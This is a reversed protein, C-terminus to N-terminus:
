FFRILGFPARPEANVRCASHYSQTLPWPGMPVGHHSAAQKHKPQNRLDTFLPMEEFCFNFYSTFRKEPCWTKSKILKSYLLQFTFGSYLIKKKYLVLTLSTQRVSRDVSRLVKQLAPKTDTHRAPHCGAHGLFLWRLLPATHLASAPVVCAAASVWGPLERPSQLVVAAM